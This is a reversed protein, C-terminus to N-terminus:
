REIKYVEIVSVLQASGVSPDCQAYIEDQIPFANYTSSNPLLAGTDSGPGIKLRVAGSATENLLYILERDPNM